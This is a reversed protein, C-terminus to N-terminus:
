KIYAQGLEQFKKLYTKYNRRKIVELDYGISELEKYLSLAQETTANKSRRLCYDYDASGHQGLHQYSMVSGTINALEYPMLAFVTGDKDVRFLVQTKFSDKYM